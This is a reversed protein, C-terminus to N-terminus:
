SGVGGETPLGRIIQTGCPYPKKKGKRWIYSTKVLVLNAVQHRFKGGKAWHSLAKTRYPLYPLLIQTPSSAKGQLPQGEKGVPRYVVLSVKEPSARQGSREQSCMTLDM